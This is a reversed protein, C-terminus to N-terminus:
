SRGAREVAETIMRDTLGADLLSRADRLMADVAPRAVATRAAAPDVRTPAPAAPDVRTPAPAPAPGTAFEARLARPSPRLEAAKTMCRAIVGRLAPSVTGLDPWGSITEYHAGQGGDFPPRGTAAYALVAGLSFVDSATTAGLGKLQEPAMYGPTGLVLGTGTLRSASDILAIGFDIVRPGDPALLVNQPKLDRHVVGAAHIAGLAEALRAGLRWVEREPLPGGVRVSEELSPGEVYATALWPPDGRPDADVVPATFAGSVSRAASIERVFRERFTPDLALEPRIAKVAVLSGSRSRGLYVRGMGGSGLERVIEYAGLRKPAHTARSRKWAM